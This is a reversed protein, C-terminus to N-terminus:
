QEVDIHAYEEDIPGQLQIQDVEETRVEIRDIFRVEPVLFKVKKFLTSYLSFTGQQIRYQGLLSSTSDNYVPDEDRFKKM